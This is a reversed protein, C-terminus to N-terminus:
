NSHDFHIVTVLTRDPNIYFARFDSLKSLNSFVFASYEFIWYNGIILTDPNRLHPPPLPLIECMMDSRDRYLCADRPDVEIRDICLEFQFAKLYSRVTSLIEMDIVAPNDTSATEQTLITIGRLILELLMSYMDVTRNSLFLLAYTNNQIQNLPKNFVISALSEISGNPNEAKNLLEEIDTDLDM